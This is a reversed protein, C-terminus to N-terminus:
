GQKDYSSIVRPSLFVLSARTRAAKMISLARASMGSIPIILSAAAKYVFIIMCILIPLGYCIMVLYEFTMAVLSM